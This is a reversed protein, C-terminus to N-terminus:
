SFIENGSSIDLHGPTSDSDSETLWVEPYYRQKLRRYIRRWIWHRAGLLRLAGRWLLVPRRRSAGPYMIALRERDRDDWVLILQMKGFREIAEQSVCDAAIALVQEGAAMRAFIANGVHGVSLLFLWLLGGELQM